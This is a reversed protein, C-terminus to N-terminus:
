IQKRKDVFIVSFKLRSLTTVPRETTYKDLLISKLYIFIFQNIRITYRLFLLNMLVYPFQTLDTYVRPNKTNRFM